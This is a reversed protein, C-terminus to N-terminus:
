PLDERALLTGQFAVRGARDAGSDIAVTLGERKLAERWAVFDQMRRASGVVELRRDAIAIHALVIERLAALRLMVSLARPWRAEGLMEVRPNLRTDLERRALEVGAAGEPTWAGGALRESRRDLKEDLAWLARRARMSNTWAAAAITLSAVGLAAAAMWEHRERRRRALPHMWEGTLLNGEGCGGSRLAELALARALYRAPADITEVTVDPHEPDGAPFADAQRFAQAQEGCLVLRAHRMGWRAALVKVARQIGDLDGVPQVLCRLLRNGQGALLTWADAAAHLVLDFCADPVASGPCGGTAKGAEGAYFWLAHAAPVIREAPCAQHALVERADQLAERTVAYAMYELRPARGQTVLALACREVPVPLRLDLLGEVLRRVQKGGQSPPDLHEAFLRDMPLSASCRYGDSRRQRWEEGALDALRVGDPSRWAAAAVPRGGSLDIGIWARRPCRDKSASILRAMSRAM